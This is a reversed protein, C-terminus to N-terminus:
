SVKRFKLSMNVDKYKNHVTEITKEALKCLFGANDGAEYGFPFSNKPVQMIFPSSRVTRRLKYILQGAAEESMYLEFSTNRSDSDSGRNTKYVEGGITTASYIEYTIEPKFMRRPFRINAVDAITLSGPEVCDLTSPESEESFDNMVLTMSFKHYLYPSSVQGQNTFNEISCTFETGTPFNFGFPYMGWTSPTFLKVKNDRGHENWFSTLQGAREPTTELIFTSRVYDYQQGADFIGIEGDTRDAIYFPMVLETTYGNNITDIYVRSDGDLNEFYALERM